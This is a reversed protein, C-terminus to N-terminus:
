TPDCTAGFTECRGSEIKSCNRYRREALDYLCSSQPKCADGFLDCRGEAFTKCVKHRGSAIDLVCASAPVCVAGYHFCQGDSGSLCSHHGGAEQHLMCARGEPVAFSIPGAPESAGEESNAGGGDGVGHGKSETTPVKPSPTGGCVTLGAVLLAVASFRLLATPHM